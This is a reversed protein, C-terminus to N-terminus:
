PRWGEEFHMAFGWGKRRAYLAGCYCRPIIADGSHPEPARPNIAEFAAAKIVSQRFLPTVVRLLPHGRECTVIDDVDAFPKM